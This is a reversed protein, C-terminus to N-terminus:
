PRPRPEVFRSPPGSDQYGRAIWKLHSSMERDYEALTGPGISVRLRKPGPERFKKPVYRGPGARRLNPSKSM